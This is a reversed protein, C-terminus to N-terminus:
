EGIRLVPHGAVNFKDVIKELVQQNYENVYDGVEKVVILVIPDEPSYSDMPIVEMCVEKYEGNILRQYFVMPWKDVVKTKLIFPNFFEKFREVDDPHVGGAAIFEDMWYKINNYVHPEEDNVKVEFYTGDDLNVEIVKYYSSSLLYLDHLLVEKNIM